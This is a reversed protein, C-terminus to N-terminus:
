TAVLGAPSLHEIVEIAMVADFRASAFPLRAATAKVRDVGRASALMGASPDLGVVEAGLGQLHRTFRGKGCGLDLIRLGAISPRDPGRAIAGLVAALRYDGAEVVDRFRGEVADFRAAVYREHALTM